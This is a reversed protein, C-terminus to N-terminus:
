DASSRDAKADPKLLKAAGLEEFRTLDTWFTGEGAYFLRIQQPRFNEAFTFLNYAQPSGFADVLLKYGQAEADQKSREVDARAQGLIQVRQAELEAVKQQVTAIELEAQAHIQAAEKEAEALIGATIVRTDASITERAIDIKKREEELQAKVTAAERQKEKTIQSEMAIYSQQITRKLDETVEGGQPDSLPAHVEIERVLALLVEINKARCIRQLEATLDQQFLERKEGQIFDRAAYTSGINRCISRLQPAIVKELVGDVNGFENIIEAAHAPDIGWVVTVGVKILFGTDSPFSIGENNVDDSHLQSYENFGIEVLTVKRVRPNIFYIGPQLVDRVTGRRGPEALPRVHSVLEPPIEEAAAADSPAPLEVKEYSPTQGGVYPVSGGAGMDFMNTVVGVFGAPIVTAPYLEVSYVNPNLKYTGPTLVEELIGQYGSDRKVIYQGAPQKKGVRRTVVGIQPFEGEFKLTGRKFKERQEPTMHHVIKWTTPDGAPIDTLDELKWDWRIPDRFHRGPGLVELQIGRQNLETAVSEGEPLTEGTKKILVACKGAPVYIRFTTWVIALVLGTLLLVSGAIISILRKM